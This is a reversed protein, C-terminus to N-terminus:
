RRRRRFRYEQKLQEWIECAVPCVEVAELVSYLSALRDPRNTYPYDRCNDPRSDGLMCSGDDMLFDCPMHKTEYDGSMENLVLYSDVVQDETLNLCAAIRELDEAPISGYFMKCCNRCKNCEYGDFLEEHLQHFQRDLTEEDAHTKLYTRFRINENERQKAYRSVEEPKIM